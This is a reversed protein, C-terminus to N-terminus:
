LRDRFVVGVGLFMVVIFSAILFYILSAFFFPIVLIVNSLRKM